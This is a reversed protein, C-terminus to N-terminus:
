VRAGCQMCFRNGQAVEAGCFPCRQVQPAAAAVQSGESSVPAGCATCFRNGPILPAGCSACAGGALPQAPVSDLKETIGVFGGQFAAQGAAAPAYGVQDPVADLPVTEDAAAGQSASRESVLQDFGSMDAGLVGSDSPVAAEDECQQGLPIAATEAVVVSEAAPPVPTGCDMCFADGEAMAAGCSSCRLEGVNGPAEEASFSSATEEFPESAEGEAVSSVAGMSESSADELESGSVAGDDVSAGESAQVEAPVNEVDSSASAADSDASPAASALVSDVAPAPAEAGPVAAAAAAAAASVASPVEQGDAVSQPEVVSSAGDAEVSASVPAPEAVPAAPAGCNMCFADGEEMPGGCSACRLGSVPVAPVARQQVAAAGCVSCFRDAASMRAGCSPCAVTQSAVEAAASAAEIEALQQQLGAREADCAAIDDYLSERGTRFRPDVKTEEYLSAGLQASLAQRRKNVENIQSKIKVSRTAREAAATGRSMASSVNDFISM